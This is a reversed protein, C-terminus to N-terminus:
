DGNLGITTGEIACVLISLNSMSQKTILGWGATYTLPTAKLYHAKKHASLLVIGTSPSHGNILRGAEIGNPPPIRLWVGWWM